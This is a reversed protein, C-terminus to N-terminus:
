IYQLVSQVKSNKQKNKQMKFKEKCDDATLSASKVKKLWLCVSWFSIFSFSIVIVLMEKLIM